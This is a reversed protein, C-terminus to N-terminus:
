QEEKSKRERQGEPKLSNVDEPYAIFPPYFPLFLLLYLVTSLFSPYFSSVLLSLSAPLIFSLSFQQLYLVFSSPLFLLASRFQGTVTCYSNDYTVCM